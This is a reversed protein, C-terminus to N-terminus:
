LDKNFSVNIEQKQVNNVVVFVTSHCVKSGLTERICGFGRLQFVLVSSCSYFGFRVFKTLVECTQM